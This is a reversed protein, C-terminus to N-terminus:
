LDLYLVKTACLSGCFSLVSAAAMVSATTGTKHVIAGMCASLLFQAFFVM